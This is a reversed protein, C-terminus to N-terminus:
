RLLAREVTTLLREIADDVSLGRGTVLLDFSEFSTLVWLTDAAEEVTLDDRLLGQEDLRRALHALGGARNQEIRHIAGGVTEPDIASM